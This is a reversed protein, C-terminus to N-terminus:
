STICRYLWTRRPLSRRTHRIPHIKTFVTPHFNSIKISPSTREHPFGKQLTRMVLRQASRKDALKFKAFDWQHHPYLKWLVHPLKGLYKLHLLTTSGLQENSVRYWDELQEIGLRNGIDDIFERVTSVAATDGMLFREALDAWWGKPSQIFKWRKWNHEPYASIVAHAPSNDM